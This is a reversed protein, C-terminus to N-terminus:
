ELGHQFSQVGEAIESYHFSSDFEYLSAGAVVWVKNNKELCISSSQMSVSSPANIFGNKFSLAKQSNTNFYVLGSATSIWLNNKSDPLVQSINNGPMSSPDADQHVFQKIRYGDFRNLGNVTGFWILGNNDENICTVQNDSLGDKTTLHKFRLEPFPQAFVIERVGLLMSVLIINRFIKRM